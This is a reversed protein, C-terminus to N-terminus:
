DRRPPIKVAMNISSIKAESLLDIMIMDLIPTHGICVTNDQKYRVRPTCQPEAGCQILGSRQCCTGITSTVNRYRISWKGMIVRTPRSSEAPFRRTHGSTSGCIIGTHSVV